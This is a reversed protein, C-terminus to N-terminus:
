RKKFDKESSIFILLMLVNVVITAPKAEAVGTIMALSSLVCMLFAIRIMWKVVM